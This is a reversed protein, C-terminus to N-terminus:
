EKSAAFFLNSSKGHSGVISLVLLAVNMAKGRWNTDWVPLYKPKVERVRFYKELITRMEKEGFSQEHGWRHFLRKCDPCFVENDRLDEKYPTTGILIGGPKLVRKIEALGLEMTEPKLHELVESCIVVGVSGSDLPLSEIMGCHADIGDQRLKEIARPDPDVSLVHWGHALASRELYGNGCGINLLREHHLRTSTAAYKLLYEHRWKTGDFSHIGENQFHSWLEAQSMRFLKDSFQNSGGFRATV